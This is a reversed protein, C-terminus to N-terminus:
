ISQYRWTFRSPQIRSMNWCNDRDQAGEKETHHHLGSLYVSHLIKPNITTACSLHSRPCSTHDHIDRRATLLVKSVKHILEEFLNRDRMVAEFAKLFVVFLDSSLKSFIECTDKVQLQLRHLKGQSSGSFWFSDLYTVELITLGVLLESAGRFKSNSVNRHINKLAIHLKSNSLQQTEPLLSLVICYVYQKQHNTNIRLSEMKGLPPLLLALPLLLICQKGDSVFMSSSEPFYQLEAVSYFPCQQNLFYEFYKKVLTTKLDSSVPMGPRFDWTSTTPWVPTQVRRWHM